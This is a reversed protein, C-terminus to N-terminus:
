SNNTNEPQGRTKKDFVLAPAARNVAIRKRFFPSKTSALELPIFASSPCWAAAPGARATPMDPKKAWIVEEALSLAPYLALLTTLINRRTNAM